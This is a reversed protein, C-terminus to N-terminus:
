LNPTAANTTWNEEDGQWSGVKWQVVDTDAFTGISSAYLGYLQNRVNYDQMSSQFTGLRWDEEEISNIFLRAGWYIPIMSDQPDLGSTAQVWQYANHSLGSTSDCVTSDHNCFFIYRLTQGMYESSTVYKRLHGGSNWTAPDHHVGEGDVWHNVGELEVPYNPITTYVTTPSNETTCADIFRPAAVSLAVAIVLILSKCVLTRM